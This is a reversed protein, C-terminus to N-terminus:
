AIDIDLRWDCDGVATSGPAGSQDEVPLGRQVVGPFELLGVIDRGEDKEVLPLVEGPGAERM